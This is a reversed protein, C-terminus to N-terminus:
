AEIIVFSVRKKIHSHCGTSSTQLSIYLYSFTPITRKELQPALDLILYKSEDTSKVECKKCWQTQLWLAPKTLGMCSLDFM